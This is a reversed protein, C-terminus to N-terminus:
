LVLGGIKEVNRKTWRMNQVALNNRWWQWSGRRSEFGFGRRFFINKQFNVKSNIKEQNAFKQVLARDFYSPGFIQKLQVLFPTKKEASLLLFSVMKPAASVFKRGKKNQSRKLITKKLNEKGFLTSSILSTMSSSMSSSSTLSSNRQHRGLILWFNISYALFQNSNLM